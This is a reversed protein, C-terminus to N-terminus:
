SIIVTQQINWLIKKKGTKFQQQKLRKAYKLPNQKM